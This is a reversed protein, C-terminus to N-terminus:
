NMGLANMIGSIIILKIVIELIISTYDAVCDYQYQLLM